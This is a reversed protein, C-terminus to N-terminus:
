FVLNLARENEEGTRAPERWHAATKSVAQLCSEVVIGLPALEPQKARILAARPAGSHTRPTLVLSMASWRREMGVGRATARDLKPM